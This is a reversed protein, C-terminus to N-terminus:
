LPPQDRGTSGGPRSARPAPVDLYPGAAPAAAEPSTVPVANYRYGDRHTQAPPEMEMTHGTNVSSQDDASLKPSTAHFGHYVSPVDLIIDKAKKVWVSTRAHISAVSPTTMMRTATRGMSTHNMYHNLTRWSDPQICAMLLAALLGLVFTGGVVFAPIAYAIDTYVINRRLRHVPRTGLSTTSEPLTLEGITDDDNEFGTRTGIVSFAALDTWIANLVKAAGEPTKSLERWKLTLGYNTEGSYSPVYGIGLGTLAAAQTYVSEWAATFASGAAFSDYLHNLATGRKAAPLYISPQRYTTVGPHDAYAESILGWALYIDEIMFKSGDVKEVGWLPMTENTYQKPQIDAVQLAALAETGNIEFTVQMVSAKVASACTYLAQDWDSGLDYRYSQGPQSPQPSGYLYGCRSYAKSSTSNDKDDYGSCRVGYYQFYESLNSNKDYQISELFEGDIPSINISSPSAFKGYYDLESKWSMGSSSTTINLDEAIFKNNWWAAVYSRRQLDPIPGVDRYGAASLDEWDPLPPAAGLMSFGGDDRISGNGTTYYNEDSISFHLSLNVNTCSTEPTIMLIDGTWRAGLELGHPITHNRVGVGGTKANVILGDILEYSNELAFTQLPRFNGITITENNDVYWDWTKFWSRYQIDLANAITGSRTGSTFINITEQPITSNIATSNLAKSAATQNQLTSFPCNVYVNWGCTRRIPRSPRSLTGQGYFSLYTAEDAAM